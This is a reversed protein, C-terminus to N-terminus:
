VGRSIVVSGQNGPREEPRQNTLLRTRQERTGDVGIKLNDLDTEEKRTAKRGILNSSWRWPSQAPAGWGHPTM